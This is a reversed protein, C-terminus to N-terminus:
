RGEEGRQEEGWKKDRRRREVGRKEKVGVGRLEEGGDTM